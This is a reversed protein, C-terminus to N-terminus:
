RRPCLPTPTAFLSIIVEEGRHDHPRAGLDAFEALASQKVHGNSYWLATSGVRAIAFSVILLGLERRPVFLSRFQLGAFFLAIADSPMPSVAAVVLVLTADVAWGIIPFGGCRYGYIWWAGLAAAAAAEDWRLAPPLNADFMFLGVNLFALGAAFWVSMLRFRPLPEHPLRPLRLTPRGM